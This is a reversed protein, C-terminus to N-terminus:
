ETLFKDLERDVNKRHKVKPAHILQGRAAVMSLDRLSRLDELPDDRTVILDAVKGPEITGTVDGLGLLEAARATSTYLAFGNSVGVYKRFYFLERWFDDM